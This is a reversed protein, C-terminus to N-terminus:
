VKRTDFRCRAASYFYKRRPYLDPVRRNAWALLACSLGSVTISVGALRQSLGKLSRNAHKSNSRIGTVKPGIFRFRWSKSGDAADSDLGPVGTEVRRRVHLLM